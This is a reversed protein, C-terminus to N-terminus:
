EAISIAANFCSPATYISLNGVYVANDDGALTRLVRPFPIWSEVCYLQKPEQIGKGECQKRLARGPIVIM